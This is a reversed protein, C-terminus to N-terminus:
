WGCEAFLSPNIQDLNFVPLSHEVNRCYGGNVLVLRLSPLTEMIELSERANDNVFLTEEGSDVYRQLYEVKRTGVFIRHHFLPELDTLGSVKWQQFAPSGLTMLHVQWGADRFSRVCAVASEFLFGNMRSQVMAECRASIAEARAPDGGALFRIHEQLDYHRGSASFLKDSHARFQDPTVELAECLRDKFRGTDLLTYDLDFVVTMSNQPQRTAADSFQPLWHRIDLPQRLFISNESIL